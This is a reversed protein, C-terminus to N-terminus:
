RCSRRLIPYPNVPAGDPLYVGVHNHPPTGKANGSTGVTGIVQGARLKSGEEVGKAVKDLHANYVRHGDIEYTVSLGGLGADVRSVKQVVADAMAVVHTGREAFVDTGEHSRAGTRPFGWDNVFQTRGDVPCRLERWPVTGDRGAAIRAAGGRLRAAGEASEAALSALEGALAVNDATFPTNAEQTAERQAAAYGTLQDTRAQHAALAAQLRNEQRPLDVEAAALAAEAAAIEERAQERSREAGQRLTRSREVGGEAEMVQQARGGLMAKLYTLGRAFEESDRSRVLAETAVMPGTQSTSGARYAAAAEEGLAQRAADRDVASEARRREAEQIRRESEVLAAHGDELDLRAVVLDGHARNFNALVSVLRRHVDAFEAKATRVRETLEAKRAEDLREREVREADLREADLREAELREAEARAADADAAPPPQAVALAPAPVLTAVLAM